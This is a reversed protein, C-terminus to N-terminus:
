RLLTVHGIREVRDGSYADKVILKWVYVDQPAETGDVTGDWFAEEPITTTLLRMGWRDYIEFLFFRPDIGSFIPRFIDNPARDDPTFTNPVFVRFGDEITIFQCVTDACAGAAFAVLCIGYTDGIEGPFTHRLDVEETILEDNIYWAFTNAGETTNSFFAVPDLTNLQPPVMEFSALPQAYVSVADEITVTDAGCGNNADIILTVDYTGPQDYTITFPACDEIM